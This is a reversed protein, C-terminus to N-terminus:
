EIPRGSPDVTLRFGALKLPSRYDNRKPRHAAVEAVFAGFRERLPAITERLLANREDRDMLRTGLFLEVDLGYGLIREFLHFERLRNGDVVIMGDDIAERVFENRRKVDEIARMLQAM